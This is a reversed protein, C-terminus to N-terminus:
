KFVMTYNDFQVHDFMGSYFHNSVRQNLYETFKVFFRKFTDHGLTQKWGFIDGLAKDHRTVETHLFRNAGSWISVLFSEIILSPQYGRNSKPIPLDPCHAIVKKLGMKQLMQKLLVMGGWPTIEKDTYSIEFEM